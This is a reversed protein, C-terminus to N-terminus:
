ELMVDMDQIKVREPLEELSFALTRYLTPWQKHDLGGSAFARPFANGNEDTLNVVDFLFGISNLNMKMNEPATLAITFYAGSAYLKANVSELKFGEFQVSESATYDKEALVPLVTLEDDEEVIWEAIMQETVPDYQRVRLYYSVPLKEKVQEQKLFTMNFYTLRGDDTWIMDEMSEGGHFESAPEMLARVVYLPMNLEAAAQTWTLMPDVELFATQGEGFSGVPANFAADGACIAPSGDTTYAEISSLAMWGDTLNQRLTLTLPGVQFSRQETANMEKEMSETIHINYVQALYDTWGLWESVALAVSISILLGLLVLLVVRLSAHKAKKEERVSYAARMLAEHCAQPEQPFADRLNWETQERKM